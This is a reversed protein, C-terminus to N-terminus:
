SQVSYSPLHERRFETEDYVFLSLSLIVLDTRRGAMGAAGDSKKSSGFDGGIGRDAATASQQDIASYPQFLKRLNKKKLNASM